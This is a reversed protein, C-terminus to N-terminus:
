KTAEISYLGNQIMLNSIKFNNQELIKSIDQISTVSSIGFIVQPNMQAFLYGKCFSPLDLGQLSLVSGRALKQYCKSIFENKQENTLKDMTREINIDKVSGNEKEELNDM